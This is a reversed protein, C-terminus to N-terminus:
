VFFVFCKVAACSLRLPDMADTTKLLPSQFLKFKSFQSRFLDDLLSKAFAAERLGLISMSLLVPDPQSFLCVFLCVLLSPFPLFSSILLLLMDPQTDNEEATESECNVREGKQKELHSTLITFCLLARWGWLINSMFYQDCFGKNETSPFLVINKWREAAFM